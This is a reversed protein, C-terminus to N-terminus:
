NRCCLSACGTAHRRTTAADAGAVSCRLDISQWCCMSCLFFANTTTEVILTEIACDSYFPRLKNRTPTSSSRKLSYSFCNTTLGGGCGARGGAGGGFDTFMAFSLTLEIMIAGAAFRCAAAASPGAGLVGFCVFFHSVIRMYVAFRENCLYM